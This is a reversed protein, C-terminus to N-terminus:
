ISSKSCHFFYYLWYCTMLLSSSRLYTRWQITHLTFPFILFWETFLWNLLLIMHFVTDFFLKSKDICHQRGGSPSPCTENESIVHLIDFAQVKSKILKLSNIRVFLLSKLMLFFLLLVAKWNPVKTQKIMRRCVRLVWILTSPKSQYYRLFM